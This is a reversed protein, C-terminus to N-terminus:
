EPNLDQENEKKYNKDIVIISSPNNEPDVVDLKKLNKVNRVGDATEVKTRSGFQKAHVDKGNSENVKEDSVVNMEQAFLSIPAFALLILLKKM